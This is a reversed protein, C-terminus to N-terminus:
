PRRSAPGIPADNLLGFAVGKNQVHTFDVLGPVISISDFVPWSRTSSRRQDGSRRRDRRPCGGTSRGRRTGVSRRGPGRLNRCRCPRMRVPRCCAVGGVADRCRGCLGALDGDAAADTVFRWCRPCKTGPAREVEVTLEGTGDVVDVASVIFLMPLDDLHRELLDRADGSPVSLQVRAELASGIVKQVRAAELQGNVIGRIDRLKTWEAEIHADHYQTADFPFEALHVSPLRDGPLKPWIEDTTVSLVPALLRTLGDAIIYQATQASRRELADARFTYLRDKSVDLYFASLDVTM